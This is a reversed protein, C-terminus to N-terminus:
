HDTSCSYSSSSNVSQLPTLMANHKDKGKEKRPDCDIGNESFRRPLRKHGKVGKQM